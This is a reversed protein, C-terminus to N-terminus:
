PIDGDTQGSDGGRAGVFQEAYAKRRIMTVTTAPGDGDAFTADFTAPALAVNEPRLIPIDLSYLGNQSVYRIKRLMRAVPLVILGADPAGTQDNNVAEVNSEDLVVAFITGTDTEYAFERKSGAM